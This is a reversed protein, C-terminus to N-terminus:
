DETWLLRIRGDFGGRETLKHEQEDKVAEYSIGYARMLAEIVEYLDALESVLHHLDAESAERAEEILKERLAHRYEEETMTVVECVDGHLRILDPVFDRILKNHEVRM